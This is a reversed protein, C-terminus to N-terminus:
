SSDQIAPNMKTYRMEHLENATWLQLQTDTDTRQNLREFVVRWSPRLQFELCEMRKGCQTCKWTPEYPKEEPAIENTLKFINELGEAMPTKPKNNAEDSKEVGASEADSNPADRPRGMLFSVHVPGTESELRYFGLRFCKGCPRNAFDSITEQPSKKNSRLELKVAARQRLSVPKWAASYQTSTAFKVPAGVRLSQQDARLFFLHSLQIHSRLSINRIRVCRVPGPLSRRVTGPLSRRYVRAFEPMRSNMDSAGNKTKQILPRDHNFTLTVSNLRKANAVTKVTAVTALALVALGLEQAQRVM